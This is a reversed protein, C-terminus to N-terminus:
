RRNQTAECSALTPDSNTTAPNLVNQSWMRAWMIWNPWPSRRFTLLLTKERTWRSEWTQLNAHYHIWRLLTVRSSDVERLWLRWWISGMWPCPLPWRWRKLLTKSRQSRKRRRVPEENRAVQCTHGLRNSDTTIPKWLQSRQKWRLLSRLRRWSLRRLVDSSGRCSTRRRWCMVDRSTSSKRCSRSKLNLSDYSNVVLTM